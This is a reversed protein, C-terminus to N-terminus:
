SPIGVNGGKQGGAFGDSRNTLMVDFQFDISGKNLIIAFALAAEPLIRLYNFMTLHFNLFIKKAIITWYYSYYILLYHISLNNMRARCSKLM